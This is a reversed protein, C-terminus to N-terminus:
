LNRNLWQKHACGLLFRRQSHQDNLVRLKVRADEDVCQPLSSILRGELAHVRGLRQARRQVVRLPVDNEGIVVHGIEARRRREFNRQLAPKIQREYDNRAANAFIHGHRGHLGARVIVQHFPVERAQSRRRPFSPPSGASAADSIPCIALAMPAACSWSMM